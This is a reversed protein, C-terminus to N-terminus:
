DICNDNIFNNFYSYKNSSITVTKYKGNIKITLTYKRIKKNKEYMVMNPFTCKKTNHYDIKIFKPENTDKSQSKTKFKDIKYSQLLWSHNKIDFEYDIYDRTDKNEFYISIRNNGYKDNEDLIYELISQNYNTFLAYLYNIFFNSNLFKLSMNLPAKITINYFEIQKPLFLGREYTEMRVIFGWIVFLTFILIKNKMKYVM